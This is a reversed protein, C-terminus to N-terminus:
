YCCFTVSARPRASKNIVIPKLKDSGDANMCLAITLRDKSQKTGSVASTALTSMPLLKYFLATEDLNYIDCLDFKRTVVKLLQRGEVIINKDVSAAEGSIKFERIGYRLKFKHLWGASFACDTIGLLAGFDEAKKLLVRDCIPIKDAVSQCYWMFLCDELEPYKCKRDCFENQTDHTEVKLVFFDPSVVFFFV